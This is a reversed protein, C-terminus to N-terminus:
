FDVTSGDFYLVGRDKYIQALEGKTFDLESFLWDDAAKWDTFKPQSDKRLLELTQFLLLRSRPSLKEDINM